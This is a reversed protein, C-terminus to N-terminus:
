WMTKFPTFYVGITVYPHHSVGQSPAVPASLQIRSFRVHLKVLPGLKSAPGVRHTGQLNCFCCHLDQEHQKSTDTHLALLPLTDVTLHFGSLRLNFVLGFHYIFWLHCLLQSSGGYLQPLEIDAQPFIVHIDM